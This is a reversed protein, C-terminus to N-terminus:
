EVAGDANPAPLEAPQWVQLGAARAGFLLRLGKVLPQGAAAHLPARQVARGVFEAVFGDFVADVDVVQVGRDQVEEAEVVGFEGEAEGAAVKPQGVDRTM